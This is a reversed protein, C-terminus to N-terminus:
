LLGRQIPPGGDVMLKRIQEAREEQEALWGADPFLDRVIKAALLQAYRPQNDLAPRLEYTLRHQVARVRLLFHPDDNLRRHLMVEDPDVPEPM